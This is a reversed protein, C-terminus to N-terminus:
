GGQCVSGQVPIPKEHRDLRARLEESTLWILWDDDTIGEDVLRLISGGPEHHLYGYQAVVGKDILWRAVLACVFDPDWKAYALGFAIGAMIEPMGKGRYDERVWLDGHYALKGSMKRASPAACTCNDEPHAHKTPEAYFAMLSQLHEALNSCSLDYLRVAQLAAVDNNRDVGVMWFGEGPKIQSRDPRFNPYTPGKTPTACTIAVYDQFDFGISLTIGKRAAGEDYVQLFRSVRLPDVLHKM